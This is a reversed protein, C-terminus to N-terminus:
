TNKNNHACLFSFFIVVIVFCHSVNLKCNLVFNLLHYTFASVIFLLDRTPAFYYYLYFYSVFVSIM